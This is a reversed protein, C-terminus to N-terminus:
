PHAAYQVGALNRDANYKPSIGFNQQRRSQDPVAIRGALWMFVRFALKRAVNLLLCGEPGAAIESKGEFASM